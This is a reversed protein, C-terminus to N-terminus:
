SDSIDNFKLGTLLMALVTGDKNSTHVKSNFDRTAINSYAGEAVNVVEYTRNNFRVDKIKPSKNLYTRLDKEELDSLKVIMGNNYFLEVKVYDNASWM